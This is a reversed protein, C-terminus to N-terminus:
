KLSMSLGICAVLDILCTLGLFIWYVRKKRKLISVIVVIVSMGLVLALETYTAMNNAWESSAGPSYSFLSVANLVQFCCILTLILCVVIDLAGLQKAKPDDKMAADGYQSKPKMAEAEKESIMDKHNVDM